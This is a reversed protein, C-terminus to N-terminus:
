YRNGKGGDWIAKGGTHRSKDHVDSKVLQIIEVEETHHWTFGNPAKNAGIQALQEPTFKEGIKSNVKVENALKSNCYKFEKAANEVFLEM